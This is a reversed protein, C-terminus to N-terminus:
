SGRYTSYGFPNILLPVHYYEQKSSVTFEITVSPYFTQTRLRKFYKETAFVLRYKGVALASHAPLLDPLRGDLDTSGKGILEWGAKTLQELTVSMATAPRGLSTDLVHTTIPSSM